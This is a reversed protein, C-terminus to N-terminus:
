REATVARLSGDALHLVTSGRGGGRVSGVLKHNHTALLITTGDKNLEGFLYMLKEATKDDVDGTPEDALLLRPRSIVARVIAVRQAEGGALKTPPTHLRKELGVWKLLEAANNRARSPNLGAVALPLMVNDLASMTNILRCDQFVVGMRRRLLAKQRPTSGRTDNGFLFVKGASPEAALYILKLLSSKGVGSAGTLFYFAGIPLHFSIHSFIARNESYHFSVNELRVM